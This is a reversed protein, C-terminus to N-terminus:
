KSYLAQIRRAVSLSIRVMKLHEELGVEELIRKVVEAPTDNLDQLLIYDEIDIREDLEKGYRYQRVVVGGNSNHEIICVQENQPLYETDSVVELGEFIDGVEVDDNDKDEMTFDNIVECKNQRLVERLKSM